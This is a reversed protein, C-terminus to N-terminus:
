EPWEEVVLELTQRLVWETSLHWAMRRVRCIAGEPIGIGAINVLVRTRPWIPPWNVLDVTAVLVAGRVNAWEREAVMQADEAEAAVIVDDLTTGVFAESEPDSISDWDAVMHAGPREGGGVLVALRNIFEGGVREVIVSEVVRGGGEPAGVLEVDYDGPEPEDDLVVKVVGDPGIMTRYGSARDLAEVVESLRVDPNFALLERSGVPGLPLYESGVDSTDILEPPFGARQLVHMYADAVPWGALRALYLGCTRELRSWGATGHLTFVTGAAGTTEESVTAWGTFLCHEASEPAEQPEELPLVQTAERLWVQVWTSPWLELPGAGPETRVVLRADGDRFTEGVSGSAEILRCSANGETTVEESVGDDWQPNNWTAVSLAAGRSTGGSTLVVRPRHLTGGTGAETEVSVAAGCTGQGYAYWGSASLGGDCAWGSPVRLWREPTLVVEEPYRVQGAWITGALNSLSILCRCAAGAPVVAERWHGYGDAWQRRVFWQEGGFEILTGGHISSWRIAIQEGAAGTVSARPGNEWRAIIHWNEEGAAMGMLVPDRLAPGAAIESALPLHLALWGGEGSSWGLGVRLWREVGAEESGDEPRDLILVWGAEGDAILETTSIAVATASPRVLRLWQADGLAATQESLAWDAEPVLNWEGLAMSALTTYGRPGLAQLPELWEVEGGTARWVPMYRPDSAAFSREGTDPLALWDRSWGWAVLRGNRDPRDLKAYATWQWSM